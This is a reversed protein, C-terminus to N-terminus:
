NISSDLPIKIIFRAGSKLNKAKLNGKYKNIITEYSIYLGIGTGMSKHKTTFYPEFIKNLINKDIGTGTDEVLIICNDNKKFISIIVFKDKRNAIKISDKANNLLNLIIQTFEGNITNLYMKEESFNKYIKIHESTYGSQVLKLSDEIKDQICIKHLSGAEEDIFGKFSEITNSLYNAQTVIHNIFNDLDEDNLNGIEKQLKLGSASTTIVSLPQRWQHAINNLTEGVSIMKAQNLLQLDKKRNKTVEIRVKSDLVKKAQNLKFIYIFLATILIMNMLILFYSNGYKEEIFNDEKSFKVLSILKNSLPNLIPIFTHIESTKKEYISYPKLEKLKISDINELDIIEGNMKHAISLNRVINLTNFIIEFNFLKKDKTTITFIFDSNNNYIINESELFINLKEINLNSFTKSKEKMINNLITKVNNKKDIEELSTDELIGIIKNTNIYDNFILISIKKHIKLIEKYELNLDETQNKLYSNIKNDRDLKFLISVILFTMIYFLLFKIFEKQKM